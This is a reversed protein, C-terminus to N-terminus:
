EKKPWLSLVPWLDSRQGLAKQKKKKSFSFQQGLGMMQPKTRGVHNRGETTAMKQLGELEIAFCPDM